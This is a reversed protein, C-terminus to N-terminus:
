RWPTRPTAQHKLFALGAGGRLHSTRRDVGRNCPLFAGDADRNPGAAAVRRSAPRVRHIRPDPRGGRDTGQAQWANRRDHPHSPDVLHPTGDAPLRRGATQRRGREPRRAGARTRYVSLFAGAAGHHHAACSSGVYRQEVVVVRKGTGGLHWAIWKGAEGSGLVVADYTDIAAM